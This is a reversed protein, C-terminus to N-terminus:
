AEGKPQLRLLGVCGHVLIEVLRARDDRYKTNVLFGMMLRAGCIPLYVKPSKELSKSHVSVCVYVILTM